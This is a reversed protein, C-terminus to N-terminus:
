LLEYYYFRFTPWGSGNCSYFNILVDIYTERDDMSVFNIGWLNVHWLKYFTSPIILILRVLTSGLGKLVRLKYFLYYFGEFVFRLQKEKFTKNRLNWKVIFFFKPLFEINEWVGKWLKRWKWPYKETVSLKSLEHCGEFLDGRKKILKLNDKSDWFNTM